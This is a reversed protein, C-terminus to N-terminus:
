RARMAESGAHWGALVKDPIFDIGNVDVGVLWVQLGRADNWICAFLLPRPPEPRFLRNRVRRGGADCRGPDDIAGDDAPARYPVQRPNYRGM